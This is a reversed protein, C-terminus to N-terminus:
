KLPKSPSQRGTTASARPAAARFSAACSRAQFRRPSAARSRASCTVRVAAPPLAKRQSFADRMPASISSSRRAGLREVLARLQLEVIAEIEPVGLSRFLVTEDIRDLLENRLAMELEGPDINSTM